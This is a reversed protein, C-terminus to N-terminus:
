AKFYSKLHYHAQNTVHLLWVLWAEWACGVFCDTIFINFVHLLGAKLPFHRHSWVGVM